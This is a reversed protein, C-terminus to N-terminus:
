DCAERDGSDCGQKAAREEYLVLCGQTNIVSGSILFSGGSSM